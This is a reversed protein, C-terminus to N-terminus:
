GAVPVEIEVGEEDVLPADPHEANYEAVMYKLQLSYRRLKVKDKGDFLADDNAQLVKLFWIHKVESYDGLYYWDVSSDTGSIDKYDWWEPKVLRDTVAIIARSNTVIGESVEGGENIKLALFKTKDVLDESNVLKVYIVDLLQGKRITCKEPLICQSIPLTSLNEDIGITFDLDKDQLKGCITVEIPVTATKVDMGEELPYSQFCIRTTDKTMDKNFSIFSVENSNVTLGEEQCSVLFSLGMSLMIGALLINKTKM